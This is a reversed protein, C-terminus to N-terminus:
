ISSIFKDIYTLAAGVAVAENKYHCIHLYSCKEEFPNLESVLSNLKDMYEDMYQGLYGGIIVPCDILMHINHIAIALYSLYESWLNEAKINNSKLLEFFTELNGGTIDSLNSVSCYPDVCGYGGCYCKRGNPVIKVHGIEASRNNEGTFVMDKYIFSGGLSNNVLIYFANKIDHSIWTEAFGAVSADHHLSCPYPIYKTLEDLTLNTLEMVKGYYVFNGKENILGPLGIGIGLLNNTDLNGTQILENVTESLKRYYFDTREFTIKKRIKSITNGLLDISVATIHHQTIDLGIAIRANIKLSYTRASRGGTNNAYGTEEIFGDDILNTLNQTITPLSLNLHMVLEQKPVNGKNIIYNLIKQRNKKKIASNATQKDNM